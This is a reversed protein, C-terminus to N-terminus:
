FVQSHAHFQPRVGTPVSASAQFFPYFFSRPLRCLPCLPHYSQGARHRHMEVLNLALHLPCRGTCPPLYTIARVKVPLTQPVVPQHCVLWRSRYQLVLDGLPVATCSRRATSCYLAAEERTCQGADSKMPGSGGVCRSPDPINLPEHVEEHLGKLDDLSLGSEGPQPVVEPEKNDGAGASVPQQM